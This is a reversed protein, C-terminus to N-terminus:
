WSDHPKKVYIQVQLFERTFDLNSRVQSYCEKDTNDM